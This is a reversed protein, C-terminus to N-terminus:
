EISEIFKLVKEVWIEQSYEKYMIERNISREEETIGEDIAKLIKECLDDIDETRYAHAKNFKGAWSTGPIDSYIVPVGSYIAEALSFSFGETRSSSIMFDVDNYLEAINDTPAVLELWEPQNTYRSEVYRYTEKQASVVLRICEGNANLRECASLVNDLGKVYPQWGFMLLKYPKEMKFSVQKPNLRGFDLANHITVCRHRPKLSNIADTVPQSVAVHYTKGFGLIRFKVWNKLKKKKDSINVGMRMHWIVRTLPAAFRVTLDWGCMHSYILNIKEKKFIKRLQSLNQFSYPSYHLFYLKSNIIELDKIWQFDKTEEPFVYIIDAGHGQMAKQLAFVSSVFNSYYPGYYSAVFACRISKM